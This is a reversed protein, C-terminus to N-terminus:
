SVTDSMNAVLCYHSDFMNEWVVIHPVTHSGAFLLAAAAMPFRRCNCCPSWMAKKKHVVADAHWPASNM